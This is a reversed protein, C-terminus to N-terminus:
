GRTYVEFNEAGTVDFTGASADLIKGLYISKDRYDVRTGAILMGKTVLKDSQPANGVTFTIAKLLTNSTTNGGAVVTDRVVGNFERGVFSADRGSALTITLDLGIVASTAAVTNTTASFIVGNVWIKQLAANANHELYKIVIKDTTQGSNVVVDTVLPTVGTQFVSFPDLRRSPVPTQLWLEDGDDLGLNPIDSLDAVGNHSYVNEAIVVSGPTLSFFAATAPDVVAPTYTLDTGSVIGKRTREGINDGASVSGGPILQRLRDLAM